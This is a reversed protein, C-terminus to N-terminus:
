REVESAKEPSHFIDVGNAALRMNDAALFSAKGGGAKGVSSSKGLLDSPGFNNRTGKAGWQGPFRAM